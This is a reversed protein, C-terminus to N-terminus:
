QPTGIIRVIELAVGVQLPRNELPVPLLARARDLRYVITNRHTFLARATRTTNSGNQLYARVTERLEPDATALKGLTRAVFDRAREEDAGATLAVLEIDAYDTVPDAGPFRRMLRATAVADLHSSRFGAMGIGPTGLAVRVGTTADIADRARAADPGEATPLWVWRTSPSPAITLPRGGAAAARVLADVAEELPAPEAPYADTWVVAALHPRDLRYRLRASAREAPIPAGGLVLNVTELRETHDIDALNDRERHILAVIGALTDEIFAFVSRMMVDLLERVEYSDPSLLFALQTLRQIAANQGAHFNRVLMSDFGHRVIDRALGVNEPGLNAEVPMGPASMNARCWHTLNAHVCARVAEAIAPEIDIETSAAALSAEEMAEYMIEPNDLIMSVALRVLEAIRGPPPEWQRAADPPDGIM